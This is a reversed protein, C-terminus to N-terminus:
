SLACSLSEATVFCVSLALWGSKRASSCAFAAAIGEAADHRRLRARRRRAPTRWWSRRTRRLRTGIRRCSRGSRRAGSTRPALRFSPRAAGRRALRSSSPAAPPRPTRRRGSPLPANSMLTAAGHYGPPATALPSQAHPTSRRRAKAAASAAKASAEAKAKAEEAQRQAQARTPSILTIEFFLAHQASPDALITM